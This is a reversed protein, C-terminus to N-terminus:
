QVREGDLRAKFWDGDARVCDCERAPGASRKDIAQRKQVQTQAIV